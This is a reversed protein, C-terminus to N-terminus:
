TLHVPFEEVLLKWGPEKDLVYSRAEAFWFDDESEDWDEPVVGEEEMRVITRHNLIDVIEEYKM